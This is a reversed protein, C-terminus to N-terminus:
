YAPRFGGGYGGGGFMPMRPMYQQPFSRQLMRGFGKPPGQTLYALGAPNVSLGAGYRQAANFRAPPLRYKRAQRAAKLSIQRALKPKGKRKATMAKLGAYAAHAAALGGAAAPGVGPVVSLAALFAPNKTIGVVSKLVKSKAVKKAVKKAGKWIKKIFGFLGVGQGFRGEFERQLLEAIAKSSVHASAKADLGPAIAICADATYGDGVPRVKIRFTGPDQM